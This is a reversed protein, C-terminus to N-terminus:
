HILLISVCWDILDNKFFKYM